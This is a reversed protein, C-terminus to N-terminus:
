DDAEQLRTIQGLIDISVKLCRITNTTPSYFLRNRDKINDINAAYLYDLYIIGNVDFKRVRFINNRIYEINNWDIEDPHNEFMVMTDRQTISLLLHKGGKEKPVIPKRQLARQVAEWFTITEFEKKKDEWTGYIAIKYNNGTEVFVDPRVEVLNETPNKVRVRKIPIKVGKISYMYLPDDSNEALAKKVDGNYKKVRELLVERVKKDVVKEFQDIKTFKELPWRTVFTDEGDMKISGYLTEEHLSGRITTNSTRLHRDPYKELNMQKIKNPRKGILRKENRYSIIINNIAEGTDSLFEGWPPTIKDNKLKNLADFKSYAALTHMLRPTTCAIVVADIAHHRHDGRNKTDIDGKSLIANLGWLRRLTGTAQGNVVQVRPSMKDDKQIPPLLMEFRSTVERAGYSTNTLQSNLFDEPIEKALFRNRKGQGFVAVRSKFENLAQEGKSAFYEYPLKKGKDKNIEVECLSLNTFENNMTKSYPLIHEIQIEPSFLKTLSITNGSYPSIRGCEKWLKYKRADLVRGRKLFSELNDLESDECGMELWLEYKRVEPDNPEIKKGLRESLFEAYEERQKRKQIAKNRDEERKNKPKKLERALEVRIMDPKGYKAVIANVVRFTEGLMRQVIPNRLENPKLADIKMVEKVKGGVIKITPNYDAAVFAEFPALGNRLHPLIKNLAKTSFNGYGEEFNVESYQEIQESTLAPLINQEIKRKVIDKLKETNDSYSLIHWLEFRQNETLSTYTEEGLADILRAATTNGLLDFVDNFTTNGKLGMTKLIKKVDTVTAKKKVNLFEFVKQREEVTLSQGIRDGSAFRVSSLQQWIRFEQFLFSSKPACRKYPEFRCRAVLGKQSKLNRQYYIIEDRIKTRLADTLVNPYFTKQKNWLMDFEEIYMERGVFRDRIREIPNDKNHWDPIANTQKFLLTFYEGITRCNNEVIKEKLESIAEKVVGEEKKAEASASTKRNSKFGRRKNLMLLIKGFESLSLKEDLGRSRLEYLERTSYFEDDNPLMGNKTLIDILRERRLKFRHFRRRIGRAIRRDVNKSVEKGNKLFDEEKVGIPFIRVGSNIIKANDGVLCWGVSNTGVDLGLTKSM